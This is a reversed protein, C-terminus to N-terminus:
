YAGKGFLVVPFTRMILQIDLWFSYNRIYFMDLRVREEYSVDSRGSVQWLGTLGPRVTLLNLGWQGYEKVEPPSIMRPGVVSMDGKLINVLQPLEDLSYKRLYYGIQTIRPDNKIKHTTALEELLRPDAQLMADGNIHMTRFKLADFQRGNLGMVRRRYIIKGTSDLKILLAIVGLIPSLVTLVALSLCIDFTRKILAEIANLRVRNVGILPVYGMEKIKLGTTLLDFLGSSLRLHIDPSTGYRRFIDLIIGRPLAGTVLILEAVGYREVLEDLQDLKGLVYLNATVRKGRQIDDDLYGLLNLGSTPWAILQEGLVHGEGNIGLILAPRSLYGKRRAAYGARRILFRGIFVLSFTLLASLGVWGRAIWLDESFFQIVAILVMGTVCANFIGAYEQLGGLLNEWDYLRYVWFLIIWGPLMVLGITLYFVPNPKVTMKFITIDSNFRLTYALWFALGLFVLDCWILLAIFVQQQRKYPLSKNSRELKRALAFEILADM